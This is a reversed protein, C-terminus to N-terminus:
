VSKRDKLIEEAWNSSLNLAMMKGWAITDLPTWPEPKFGLLTFELPLRNANAEVFANVGKAYADLMRMTESDARTVDARAARSLGVARLMHDTEFAIAGFIEALRGHAIRRNLEMKWLRDQAHVYGQAFFLDDNNQAYIDPVGRKDRIGEVPARLGKVKLLGSVQPLPRRYLYLLAALTLLLIALIILTINLLM